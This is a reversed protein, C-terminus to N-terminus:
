ASKRRDLMAFGLRVALIALLYLLVDALTAGCILLVVFAFASTLANATIFIWKRRFKYECFSILASVVILGIMWPSSLIFNESGFM